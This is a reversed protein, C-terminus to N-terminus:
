GNGMEEARVCSLHEYHDYVKVIAKKPSEAEVLMSGGGKAPPLIRGISNVPRGGRWTVLYKKKETM